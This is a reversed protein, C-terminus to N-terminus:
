TKNIRRELEEPPLLAVPVDEDKAVLLRYHFAKGVAGGAIELYEMDVLEQLASRLQHDEAGTVLRLDRRTFLQEFCQDSSSEGVIWDRIKQWIEKAGRSLEHLTTALVEKALDYALRYDDLNALVFPDGDETKGTQRQYQHLFASAEILCLFRENDRRNRLRKNPFTLKDAYPIFVLVEELL